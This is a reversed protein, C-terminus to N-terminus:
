MEDPAKLPADDDIAGVFPGDAALDAYSVSGGSGAAWVVGAVTRLAAPVVGLRKSARSLWQQRATAAAKRLAAGDVHVSDSHWTGSDFPVLDTEGMVMRVQEFPVDLEEAVVQALATRIGQGFDVKGSFATVGGDPDLRIRREILPTEVPSMDGGGEQHGSDCTGARWM